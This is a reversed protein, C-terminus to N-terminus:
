GKLFYSAYQQCILSNFEVFIMPKCHNEKVEDQDLLERLDPYEIFFKLNKYFKDENDHVHQEAKEVGGRFHFQEDVLEVQEDQVLM